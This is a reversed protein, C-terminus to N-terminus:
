YLQHHLSDILIVSAANLMDTCLLEAHLEQKTAQVGMVAQQIEVSSHFVTCVHRVRHIKDGKLYNILLHCLTGGYLFLYQLRKTGIMLYHLHTAHATFVSHKCELLKRKCFVLLKFHREILSIATTHQGEM